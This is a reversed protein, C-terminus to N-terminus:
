QQGDAPQADDNVQPGRTGERLEHVEFESLPYDLQCGMKWSDKSRQRVWMVTAILSRRKIREGELVVTLVSGREFRRPLELCLGNQSIDVVHGFWPQDVIRQVAQCATGRGSLYRKKARHEKKGPREPEVPEVEEPPAAAGGPAALAEVFELVSGQRKKRDVQLAKLIAREVRQ